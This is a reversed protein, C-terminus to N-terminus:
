RVIILLVVVVVVHLLLVSCRVVICSTSSGEACAGVWVMSSLNGVSVSSSFSPSFMQSFFDISNTLTLPSSLSLLGPLSLAGVDGLVDSM